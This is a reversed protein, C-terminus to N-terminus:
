DGSGSRIQKVPTGMIRTEAVHRDDGLMMLAFLKEELTRARKWRRSLLPTAHPDIVLFDAEKGPVLNGICDALDLCVAGGLTIRYFGEMSSFSQGLLQGVKYAESLTRLLSFSTGGGVDTALGVQVDLADVRKQDFLGSGIFLNSTPCFAIAAGTEAMRRYDTDDMHICHAFVSRPRVLGYGDYVDLYSRSGPFLSAVWAVEDTNEALHTHIYVDPYAAALEGCRALQKPTSTPAFRPTIAYRQRGRGHWRCILDATEQIGGGPPDLLNDPAHRDMLVKGAIMRMQRADAASFFAEASVAHVTGLVLATTTGNRVLEDLFLDAAEAAVAPDSFAAEAPFTYTNLWDLLQTGFSAIVDMQPFHIHMDIFGPMMLKGPFGTVPTGPPLSSLLASSPGLGSIRGNDVVMLADPIFTGDEPGSIFHFVDGRFAQRM